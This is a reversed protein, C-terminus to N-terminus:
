IFYIDIPKTIISDNNTNSTKDIYYKIGGCIRPIEIITNLSFVQLVDLGNIEQLAENFTFRCDEAEGNKIQNMKSNLKEIVDTDGEFM